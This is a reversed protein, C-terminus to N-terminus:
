IRLSTTILFIKKPNFKFLPPSILLLDNFTKYTRGIFILDDNLSRLQNTTNGQISYRKADSVMCCDKNCKINEETYNEGNAKCCCEHEETLESLAFVANGSFFISSIIVVTILLLFSNNSNNKM